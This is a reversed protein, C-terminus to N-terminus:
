VKLATSKPNPSVPSLGALLRIATRIPVSGPVPLRVFLPTATPTPCVTVTASMLAPRSTNVGCALALPAPYALKVNWTCSPPPVALPPMSRAAEALVSVTLRLATLSAGVIATGTALWNAVSSM